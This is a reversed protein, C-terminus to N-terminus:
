FVSGLTFTPLSSSKGLLTLLPIWLSVLRPFGIVGSFHSGKSSPRPRESGLRIRAGQGREDSFELWKKLGERKIANPGLRNNSAVGKSNWVVRGLRPKQVLHPKLFGRQSNTRAAASPLPAAKGEMQPTPWFSSPLWINSQVGLLSSM